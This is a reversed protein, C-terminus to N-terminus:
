AELTALDFFAGSNITASTPPTDDIADQIPDTPTVPLPQCYPSYIGNRQLFRARVWRKLATAPVLIPNEIGRRVLQYGTEPATASNSVVEEIFVGSILKNITEISQGTSSSWNVAYSFELPTLSISPATLLPTIEPTSIEVADSEVNNLTDVAVVSVKLLAGISSQTFRDFDFGIEAQRSPTLLFTKGLVTKSFDRHSAIGIETGVTGTGGAGLGGTYTFTLRYEDVGANNNTGNNISNDHDFTIKLGDPEWVAQLNSVPTPRAASKSIYDYTASWGKSSHNELLDNIKQDAFSWKFQFKYPTGVDLPSIDVFIYENNKDPESPNFKLDQPLSM